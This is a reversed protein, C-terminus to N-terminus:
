VISRDPPNRRCNVRRKVAGRKSHPTWAPAEKLRDPLQNSRRPAIKYVTLM